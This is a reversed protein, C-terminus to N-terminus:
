MRRAFAIAYAIKEVREKCDVISGGDCDCDHGKGTEFLQKRPCSNWGKVMADRAMERDTDSVPVPSNSVLEM